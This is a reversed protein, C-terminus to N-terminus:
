LFPLLRVLRLVAPSGDVDDSAATSYESDATESDSDSSSSGEDDSEWVAWRHLGSVGWLSWVRLYHVLITCRVVM